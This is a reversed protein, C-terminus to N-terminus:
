YGVLGLAKEVVLSLYPVKDDEKTNEKDEFKESPDIRRYIARIEEDSLSYGM